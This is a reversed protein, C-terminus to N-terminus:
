QSKSKKKFRRRVEIIVIVVILIIPFLKEIFEVAKFFDVTPGEPVVGFDTLSAKLLNFICFVSLLSLSLTEVHNSTRYQFPMRYNHHILFMVCLCSLVVMRVSGFGKLLTMWTILLRRVSIVAEWYLTAHKPDKRFPGQLM